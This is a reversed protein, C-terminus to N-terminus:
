LGADEETACPAVRYGAEAIARLLDDRRVAGPRYLISASSDALEVRASLVEPVAELASELRLVCSLCRLGEVRLRTMVWDGTEDPTEPRSMM